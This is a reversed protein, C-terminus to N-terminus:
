RKRVELDLRPKKINPDLMKRVKWHRELRRKDNKVKQDLLEVFARRQEDLKFEEILEIVQQLQQVSLDEDTAQFWLLSLITNARERGVVRNFDRAAQQLKEKVSPDIQGRKDRASILTKIAQIAEVPYYSTTGIGSPALEIKYPILGKERWTRISRASVKVGDAQMAKQLQATTLEERM